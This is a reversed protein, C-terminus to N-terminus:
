RSQGNSVRPHRRATGWTCRRASRAAFEGVAECPRGQDDTNSPLSRSSEVIALTQGHGSPDGQQRHQMFEARVLLSRSVSATPV